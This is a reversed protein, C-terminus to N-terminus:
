RLKNTFIIYIYSYECFIMVSREIIYNGLKVVVIYM